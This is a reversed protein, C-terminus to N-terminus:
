LESVRKKLVLFIPTFIIHDGEFRINMYEFYLPELSKLLNSSTPNSLVNAKLLGARNKKGM